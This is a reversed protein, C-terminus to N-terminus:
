NSIRPTRIEISASKWNPGCFNAMYAFMVVFGVLLGVHMWGGGETKRPRRWESEYILAAIFLGLFPMLILWPGCM